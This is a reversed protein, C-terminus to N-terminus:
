FRSRVRRTCFKEMNNNKRKVLKGCQLFHERAQKLDGSVGATVAALYAYFCASWRTENKLRCHLDVLISVVSYSYSCM